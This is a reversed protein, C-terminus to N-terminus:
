EAAPTALQLVFLYEQVSPTGSPHSRYRKHAQTHVVVQGFESLLSTLSEATLNADSSHSLLVHCARRNPASAILQLLAHLAARCEHKLCYPSPQWDTRTGARGYISPTDGRAITTLLHLYSGYQRFMYPPDLYIIDCAQAAAQAVSAADGCHCIAPPPSYCFGTVGVRETEMTLPRLASPKLRKLYAAFTGATNAAACAAHLLCALAVYFVKDSVRGRVRELAQRIADIKAGNPETFFLRGGAPTYTQRIFGDGPPTCALQRVLEGARAEEEASAWPDLYARQLVYSVYLTDNALVGVGQRHLMRAVSCSGAFLDAVMPQPKGALLPQVHSWIWGTLQSKNGLYPWERM